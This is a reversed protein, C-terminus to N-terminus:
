RHMAPPCCLLVPDCSPQWGADGLVWKAGWLVGMACLVWKGRLVWKTALVWKAALM